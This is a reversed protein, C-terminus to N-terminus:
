QGVSRANLHASNAAPTCSQHWGQQHSRGALCWMELRWDRRMIQLELRSCHKRTRRSPDWGSGQVRRRFSVPRSGVQPEPVTALKAGFSYDEQHTYKYIQDWNETRRSGGGLPIGGGGGEGLRIQTVTCVKEVHPSWFAVVTVLIADWHVNKLCSEGTLTGFGLGDVTVLITDWTVTSVEM